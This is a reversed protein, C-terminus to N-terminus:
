NSRVLLNVHGSLGERLAHGFMARYSLGTELQRLM